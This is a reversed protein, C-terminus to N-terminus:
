AKRETMHTTEATGRRVSVLGDARIFAEAFGERDPKGYVNWTREALAPILKRAIEFEADAGEIPDMKTLNDGWACIQGGIVKETPEVSLGGFAHSCDWWHNWFFVGWDLVEDQEWHPSPTVIYLPRWAANIVSFGGDLLDTTSQYYNEWSFVLVRKDIKDNWEKPFGEWVVPTRGKSLIMGTLRRIYEGYLDREDKLGHAERWSVTEPCANWNSIAAEDGGIHILDSDPFFGCLESYLADLGEFARDTAEIVGNSGFIEPYAENFPRCHGPADIEPVIKVGRAAAYRAVDSIEEETYHRGPTSLKPFVRSPLTYSENDTFHLQLVSMGYLWLVDIYDYIYRVPHWQRALDLMFGRWARDPKDGSILGPVSLAAGERRALQFLKALAHNAGPLGGALITIKGGSPSVGYEEASLSPDYRLNIDGGSPTENLGVGFVREVNEIFPRIAKSLCGEPDGDASVSRVAVPEGKIISKKTHPITLM